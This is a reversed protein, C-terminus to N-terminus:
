EQENKENEFICEADTVSANQRTCINKGDIM